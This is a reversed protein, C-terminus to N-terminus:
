ALNPRRLPPNDMDRGFRVFIQPKAPDSIGIGTDEIDIRVHRGALEGCIVVQGGPPTYQCANDILKSLIERFAYEGAAVPPLHDPM